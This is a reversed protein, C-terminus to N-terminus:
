PVIWGKATLLLAAAGFLIPTWPLEAGVPDNSAWPPLPRERAPSSEATRAGPGAAAAVSEEADVGAVTEDGEGSEGALWRVASGVLVPFGLRLPLDTQAPDFGLELRRPRDPPPRGGPEERGDKPPRARGGDGWKGERAIAIPGAEISAIATDGPRTELVAAVSLTLDDLSVDRSVPHFPNWDVLFVAGPSPPEAAARAPEAGTGSAPAGGIVLVGAGERIPVRSELEPCRDLVVVDAASLAGAIATGRAAIAAPDVVRLRVGALARLAGDLFRNGRTVLAVDIPGVSDIRVSRRDDRALADRPAEGRGPGDSAEPSFAVRELTASVVPIPEPPLGPLHFSSIWSRGGKVVIKAGGLRHRETHLVLEATADRRGVNDVRVRLDLGGESPSGSSIGLSTVALNEGAEGFAQVDVAIRDPGEAAAAPGLAAAPGAALGAPDTLVVLHRRYAGEVGLFSRAQVIARALDAGNSEPELAALEWPAISRADRGAAFIAVAEEEALTRAIRAAARRALDFRRVGDRDRAAMSASLDLVIAVRRPAKAALRPGAIGAALGGLGAALVAIALLERWPFSSAATARARRWLDGYAVVARRSTPRLFIAALSLLFATALALGAVWPGVGEWRIM